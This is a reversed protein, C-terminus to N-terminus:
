PLNYSMKQITKKNCRIIIELEYVGDKKIRKVPPPEEDSEEFYSAVAKGRPTDIVEMYAEEGSSSISSESEEEQENITALTNYLKLYNQRKDYANCNACRPKGNPFDVHFNKPHRDMNTKQKFALDDCKALAVCVGYHPKLWPVTTNCAVCVKPEKKKSM